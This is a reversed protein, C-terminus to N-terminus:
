LFLTGVFCTQNVSPHNKYWRSSASLTVLASEINGQPVFKSEITNCTGKCLDYILTVYQRLADSPCVEPAVLFELPNADVSPWDVKSYKRKYM